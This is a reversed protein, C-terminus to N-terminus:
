FTCTDGNEKLWGIKEKYDPMAKGVLTWFRKSHNHEILHALEHICVYELVEDPAFLLRTSININGAKSCSGWNSKNHKFFIKNLKRNFYKENLEKIKRQLKPLRKSGVCRSILSSIHNNQQIRSLNSSISLQITNGTLRASSNKKDKFEIKLIYEDDAIKLKDGKKYEKQSEPKFRDPNEKLKNKAWTKMRTLQRTKEEQNLISPIRINIAKKRISVRCNRRHVYHIKVLYKFGNVELTETKM